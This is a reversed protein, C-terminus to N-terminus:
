THVHPHADHPNHDFDEYDIFGPQEWAPIIYPKGHSHVVEVDIGYVEHITEPTILEFGGHGWVTGDKVFVFKDSFHVALNLDHMTMVTCLDRRCVIDFIMHMTKHANSIDLSSTPEDLILVRPDQVLARAIQVKQFEGGSISDMYCVALDDLGMSHIISWVIDMDSKSASLDIHPRRGILIYDFVTSRVTNAKQPVYAVKQALKRQPVSLIDEDDVSITGTQPRHINCLCKLLTTKGVGNPGLISVISNDEVDFSVDHLVQKNGYSFGVDDVSLM